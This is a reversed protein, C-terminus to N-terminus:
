APEALPQEVVTPHEGAGGDVTSPHRQARRDAVPAGGRGVEVEEDVDDALQAAADGAGPSRGRGVAPKSPSDTEGATRGLSEFATVRAGPGASEKQCRM